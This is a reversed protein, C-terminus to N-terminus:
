EFSLTDNCEVKGYKSSNTGGDLLEPLRSGVVTKSNYLFRDYLLKTMYADYSADHFRTDGQLINFKEVLYELSHKKFNPFFKRALKLTDIGQRSKNLSFDIGIDNGKVLLFNYDFQINHGLFPLDECFTFFEPLVEDISPYDSVMEPTIHTLAQVERPIYQIPKVYTNFKDVVVEDKIKWAGIQIIENNFPSFGTTELDLSVYSIM